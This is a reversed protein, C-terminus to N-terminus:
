LPDELGGTPTDKNDLRDKDSSTAVIPYWLSYSKLVLFTQKKCLTMPIVSVPSPVSPRAEQSLERACTAPWLYRRSDEHLLSPPLSSELSEGNRDM